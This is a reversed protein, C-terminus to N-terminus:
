AHVIKQIFINENIHKVHKNIFYLNIKLVFLYLTFLDWFEEIHIKKKNLLTKSNEM